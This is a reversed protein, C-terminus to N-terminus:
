VSALTDVHQFAEYWRYWTSDGWGAVEAYVPGVEVLEKVVMDTIDYSLFKDEVSIVIRAKKGEEDVVLCPTHFGPGKMKPYYRTLPAFDVRHKLIWQSYDRKLAFVDFLMAELKNVCMVSLDGGFWHFDGNWLVGRDYYYRVPLMGVADETVRWAGTESSYILFRYNNCDSDRDLGFCVLKYHDSKSPDFAINAYRFIPMNYDGSFWPIVRHKCTTPNYVILQLRNNKLKIQMCLLGNCSHLSHIEDGRKLIGDTIPSSVNGVSDVGEPSLSILDIENRESDPSFFLLDSTPHTRIARAHQRRFAPDSILSLWQKSVCKQM